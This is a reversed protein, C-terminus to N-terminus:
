SDSVLERYGDRFVLTPKDTAVSIEAPDSLVGGVAPLDTLGVQDLWLILTGTSMFNGM